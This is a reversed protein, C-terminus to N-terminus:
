WKNFSWPSDGVHRRMGSKPGLRLLVAFRGFLSRSFRAGFQLIRDDAVELGTTHSGKDHQIASRADQVPVHEWVGVQVACMSLRDHEVVLQAGTFRRTQAVLQCAEDCWREEDGLQVVEQLVKADRAVKVEEPLGPADRESHLVDGRVTGRAELVEQEGAARRGVREPVGSQCETSAPRWARQGFSKCSTSQRWSCPPVVSPMSHLVVMDHLMTPWYLM